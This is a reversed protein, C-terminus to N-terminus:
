EEDAQPYESSPNSQLNIESLGAGRLQRNLAPLESTKFENWRKMVDAHDSDIIKLAEM